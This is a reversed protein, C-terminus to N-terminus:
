ITLTGHHVKRHCNACLLVCKNIEKQIDNIPIGRGGASGIGFAKSTPDTHHFDICCPDTEDCLICGSTKQEIIYDRIITRQIANRKAVAKRHQLPNMNYYQKSRAKSCERCINNYGDHKTKNKNFDTIEKSEKCMTCKKM